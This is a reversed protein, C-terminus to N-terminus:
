ENFGRFVLWTFTRWHMSLIRRQNVWAEVITRHEPDTLFNMRWNTLRQVRDEVLRHKREIM